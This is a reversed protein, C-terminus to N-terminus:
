MEPRIEGRLLADQLKDQLQLIAVEPDFNSVELGHCSAKTMGNALKNVDMDFIVNGQLYDYNGEAM